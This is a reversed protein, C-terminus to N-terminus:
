KLNKVLREAEKKLLLLWACLSKGKAAANSGLDSQVGLGARGRSHLYTTRQNEQSVHAAPYWPFSWSTFKSVIQFEEIM